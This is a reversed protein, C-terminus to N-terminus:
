DDKPSSSTAARPFHTLGFIVWQRSENAIGIFPLTVLSSSLNLGDVRLVVTSFPDGDPSLRPFAICQLSANTTTVIVKTEIAGSPAIAPESLTVQTEFPACKLVLLRISPVNQSTSESVPPFDVALAEFPPCADASSKVNPWDVAFAEPSPATETAWDVNGLPLALAVALPVFLEAVAIPDSQWAVATPLVPPLAVAFQPVPAASAVAESPPMASASDLNTMFQTTFADAVPAPEIDFASQSTSPPNTITVVVPPPTAVPLPTLVGVQEGLEPVAVTLLEPPL